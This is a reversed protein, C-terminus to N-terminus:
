CWINRTIPSEHYEHVVGLEMNGYINQALQSQCNSALSLLIEYCMSHNSGLRENNTEREKINSGHVMIDRSGDNIHHIRERNLQM